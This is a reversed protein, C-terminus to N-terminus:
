PKGGIEPAIEAGINCFRVDMQFAQCTVISGADFSHAAPQGM